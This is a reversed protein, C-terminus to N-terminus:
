SVSSSIRIKQSCKPNYNRKLRTPLYSTIIFRKKWLGAISKFVCRRTDWQFCFTAKYKRVIHVKRVNKVARQTRLLRIGSHNGTVFNESWLFPAAFAVMFRKRTTCPNALMRPFFHYQNKHVVVFSTENTVVRRARLTDSREFAVLGKWVLRSAM